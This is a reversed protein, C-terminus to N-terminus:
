FFSKKQRNFMCTIGTETKLLSFIRKSFVSGPYLFIFDSRVIYLSILLEISKQNGCRNAFDNSLLMSRKQCLGMLDRSENRATCQIWTFISELNLFFVVFSILLGFIICNFFPILQLSIWHSRIFHSIIFLCCATHAVLWAPLAAGVIKPTYTKHIDVECQPSWM